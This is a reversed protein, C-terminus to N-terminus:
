PAPSSLSLSRELPAFVAVDLQDFLSVPAYEDLVIEAGHAFVHTSRSRRLQGAVQETADLEIAPAGAVRLTRSGIVVLAGDRARAARILARRALSLEAASRPLGATRPYRWLAVVASGSGLAAAIPAPEQIVTWSRPASFSVGAAPYSFTRLAGAAAPRTLSPVPTRSNGCASLLGLACVLLITLLRRM